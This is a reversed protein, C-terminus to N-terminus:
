RGATFLVWLFLAIALFATFGAGVLWRSNAAARIRSATSPAALMRERALLQSVAKLLAVTAADDGAQPAFAQKVRLLAALERRCSACAALHEDAAQFETRGLRHEAIDELSEGLHEGAGSM